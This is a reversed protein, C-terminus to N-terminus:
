NTFKAVRILNIIFLIVFNLTFTFLIAVKLFELPAVEREAYVKRANAIVDEIKKDKKSVTEELTVFFDRETLPYISAAFVFLVVLAAVTRFIIPKKNM